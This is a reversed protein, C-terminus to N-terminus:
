GSGLGHGFDVSEIVIIKGDSKEYADCVLEEEEGECPREFEVFECTPHDQREREAQSASVIRYVKSASGVEDHKGDYRKGEGAM